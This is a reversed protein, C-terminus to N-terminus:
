FNIYWCFIESLFINKMNTIESIAFM